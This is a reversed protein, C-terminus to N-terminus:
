VRNIGSQSIVLLEQLSAEVAARNKPSRCKRRAREELQRVRERTIGLDDGLQQLTSVDGELGLRRTLVMYDREGNRFGDFCSGVAGIVRSCAETAHLERLQGVAAESAGLQAFVDSLRTEGGYVAALLANVAVVRQRIGGMDDGTTMTADLTKSNLPANGM